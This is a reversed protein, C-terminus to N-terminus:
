GVAQECQLMTFSVASCKSKDLCLNIVTREFIIKREFIILNCNPKQAIVIGNCNCNKCRTLM